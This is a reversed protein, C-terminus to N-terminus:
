VAGVKYTNKIGRIISPTGITPNNDVNVNAIIQQNNKTKTETILQTLLMNTANNNVAPKNTSFYLNDNPLGQAIPKIGGESYKAAISRFLM